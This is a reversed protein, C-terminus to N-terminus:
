VYDGHRTHRGVTEVLAGYTRQDEATAVIRAREATLLVNVLGPRGSFVREAYPTLSFVIYATYFGTLMAPAQPWRTSRGSVVGLVLLPVFAAVYFFYALGAFPFQIFSCLV